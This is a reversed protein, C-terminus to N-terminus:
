DLLIPLACKSRGMCAEEIMPLPVTHRLKTRILCSIDVKSQVEGSM